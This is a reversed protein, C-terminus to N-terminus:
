ITKVEDMQGQQESKRDEPFGANILQRMPLVPRKIPLIAILMNYPARFQSHIFIVNSSHIQWTM